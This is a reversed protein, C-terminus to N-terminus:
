YLETLNEVKRRTDWIDALYIVDGEIFYILKFYKHLVVSSFAIGTDELLPELAGIKPNEQLLSKYLKLSDYFHKTTSQSYYHQGCSMIFDFARSFQPTYELRNVM